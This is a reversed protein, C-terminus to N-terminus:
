VVSPRKPRSRHAARAGLFWAGQSTRSNRLAERACARHQAWRRPDVEQDPKRTANSCMRGKLPPEGKGRAISLSPPSDWATAGAERKWAGCAQAPQGLSMCSAKAAAGRVLDSIRARLESKSSTRKTRRPNRSPPRLHLDRTPDSLPTASTRDKVPWPVWRISM